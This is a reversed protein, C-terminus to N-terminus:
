RRELLQEVMRRIEQLEVELAEAKQVAQSPSCSGYQACDRCPDTYALPCDNM